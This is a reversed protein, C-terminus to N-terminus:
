TSSSRRSRTRRPCHRDCPTRVQITLPWDGQRSVCLLPVTRVKVAVIFYPEYPLTAKFRTGDEALFYYDVAAMGGSWEEDRLLTQPRRCDHVTVSLDRILRWSAVAVGASM